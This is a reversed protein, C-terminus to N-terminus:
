KEYINFKYKIGNAEGGGRNEVLHFGSYDPFFVDAETTQDVLTLYLRDSKDIMQKYVSAGGCIFIENSEVKSAAKIASDLTSVVICGAIKIKRSSLIINTRNPLPKGGISEFTKYGMIIPHGLTTKKFYQLDEPIHWLLQNKFGLERNKGIVAIISILSKSAM